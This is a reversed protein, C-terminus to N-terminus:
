DEILFLAIEDALFFNNNYLRNNKITVKNENLLLKVKKSDLIDLSVGVKSRLGLFIKETKIDNHSLQEIKQSLPNKIYAQVNQSPYFRKDKLFGVAGSGIGIYDKLQWYPPSTVILHVSSDEIEDMKRADGIIIKHQTKM